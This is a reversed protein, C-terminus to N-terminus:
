SKFVKIKYKRQLVDFWDKLRSDVQRRILFRKINVKFREFPLNGFRGKNKEFYAKAEEDTVPVLSSDTKFQIFKESFRSRYGNIELLDISSYSLSSSPTYAITNM